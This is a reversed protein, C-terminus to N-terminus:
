KKIQKKPAAKAPAPEAAKVNENAPAAVPETAFDSGEEVMPVINQDEAPPTAQEIVKGNEDVPIDMEPNQTNSLDPLEVEDGNTEFLWGAHERVTKSYKVGFFFCFASLFLILIIELTKTM